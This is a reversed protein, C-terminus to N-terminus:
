KKKTKSKKDSKSQTGSKAGTKAKTKGTAKAALNTFESFKKGGRYGHYFKVWDVHMAVPLTSEDVGGVWNGGLQMDIMLYFPTTWPYKLEDDNEGRRHIFTQEGNITWAIFDPTWELGYVNWDERKIKGRGGHSLDKASGNGYHLTQYTFDDNNLREVIDIEGDNPWGRVGTEPMMWVAPWAGKQGELKMKFEIKGYKLNFLGKTMVGGTLVARTDAARDDNKVGYVHLQGDSVQVLDDRLSMNKVWDVTKSWADIRTWLKPNLKKGKFEETFALKWQLADGAPTKEAATKGRKAAAAATAVATLACLAITLLLKKM